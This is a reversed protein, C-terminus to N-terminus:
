RLTNAQLILHVLFRFIWLLIHRAKLRKKSKRIYKRQNPGVITSGDVNEILNHHDFWYWYVSFSNVILLPIVAFCILVLVTYILLNM